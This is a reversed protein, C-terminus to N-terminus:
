IKILTHLLCGLDLLLRQVQLIRHGAQGLATVHAHISLDLLVEEIPDLLGLVELLLVGLVRIQDLDCRLEPILRVWLVGYEIIM